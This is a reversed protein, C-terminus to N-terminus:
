EIVYERIKYLDSYHNKKRFKRLIFFSGIGIIVGLIIYDGLGFQTYFPQSAKVLVYEVSDLAGGSEITAM